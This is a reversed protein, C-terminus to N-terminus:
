AWNGWADFDDYNAIHATIKNTRRKKDKTNGNPRGVVGSLAMHSPYLPRPSTPLIAESKKSKEIQGCSRKRKGKTKKLEVLTTITNQKCQDCYANHHIEVFNPKIIKVKVTELKQVDEHTVGEILRHCKHCWIDFSDPKKSQIDSTFYDFGSAISQEEDPSVEILFIERNENEVVWEKLQSIAESEDETEYFKRRGEYGDELLLLSSMKVFIFQHNIM